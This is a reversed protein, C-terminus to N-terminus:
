AAETAPQADNAAGGKRTANALAYVEALTMPATIQAHLMAPDVKGRKIEGRLEHLAAARAQEVDLSGFAIRDLLRGPRLV